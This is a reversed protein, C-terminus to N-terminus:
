LPQHLMKKTDILSKLNVIKGDRTATITVQIRGFVDAFMRNKKSESRNVNKSSFPYSFFDLQHSFLSM